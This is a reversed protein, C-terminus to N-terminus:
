YLTTGSDCYDLKLVNKDDCFVETGMLMVRWEVKVELGLWGSIYLIKKWLNEEEPCVISDDVIHTKHSAEKFNEFNM